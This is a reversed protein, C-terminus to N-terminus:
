QFCAFAFDADVAVGSAQSCNVTASWAGTSTDYALNATCTSGRPNNRSAALCTPANDFGHTGMVSPAFPNPSFTIAYQGLGPHAVTFGAPQPMIQGGGAVLNVTGYVVAGVGSVSNWSLPTETKKCKSPTKLIRLAGTSTTVCGHIPAALALRPCEMCLMGASLAAVLLPMRKM